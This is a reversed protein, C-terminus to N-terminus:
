DFGGLAEAGQEGRAADLVGHEVRALVLGLGFGNRLRAQRSSDGHGGVHGAAAGVDAGLRFHQFAAAEVDDEGLEVFARADVPLEESAARPLALRPRDLRHHAQLVLQKPTEGWPQAGQAQFRGGADDRLPQELEQDPAYLLSRLAVVPSYPELCELLIALKLRHQPERSRFSLVYALPRRNPRASLM